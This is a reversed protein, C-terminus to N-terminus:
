SHCVIGTCTRKGDILSHLLMVDDDNNIARAFSAKLKQLKKTCYAGGRVNLDEKFRRTCINRRCVFVGKRIDFIVDTVIWLNQIIDRM